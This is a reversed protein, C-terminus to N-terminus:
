FPSGATMGLCTPTSSRERSSRSSRHRRATPSAFAPCAAYGRDVLAHMGDAFFDVVTCERCLERGVPDDTPAVWSIWQGTSVTRWSLLSGDSSLRPALSLRGAPVSVPVREEGSLRDQVIIDNRLADPPGTYTSYALRNGDRADAFVLYKPSADHTIRRVPGAPGGSDTDLAVEWLHVVWSFRSLAIRGNNSVSPLWTMGPGATLPEVPGSIHGEDSIRARHLNIGEFTTGTLFLMQGPLWLAPFQIVGVM